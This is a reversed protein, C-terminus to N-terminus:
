RRILSFHGKRIRSNGKTDILEVSFWYDTAPLYQGNFLGNWGDGKPNVQTILKGFRDFIYIASSTYFNENVGLVKWTDNSGDNNPTFFKPFGIVSVDIQAIGCNNKDQIFLTYIGPTLNEFNPEDQFSSMFEDMKKIAFEYDGIGLNATTITISNNESDDVIIIDENTITAINSAEITITQPFSDCGEPSTAIVTYEGASSIIADFNSSIVVDNEDKWEYNYNGTPNYTTVNIPPLNQCYIATENLEFEPKPNVIFEVTTEASCNNNLQNEVKITIKQTTTFFPNPLPSPLPDGNENFYSVLMGTQGNLIDSEITSTNFPFEGDLDDDCEIQNLLANAVPKKDVIFELRTEAFCAGDLDVSNSDTVRITITQSSTSFPNPLPSPLPNGNQDVYSVLMGTQGNLITSEVSSTDFPYFGDFDDDCQRNVTVNNAIPIPEVNLTIHAGLGLCDNDLKSDVRIYITQTTTYGINRYNSPDLIPNEEALADTENRYYNIFLQQGVPFINEIESTVSSFNFSTIGDTEDNLVDLFDDCEYFTRQFSAPILTTSVILNIESVRYCGNSNEIRAWVIDTNIASNYSTPNFIKEANDNITAGMFTKFYTFTETATNVSIKTNAETLNFISYGDNDDDCQKLIVPTTITPLEFVEINFNTTASCNSNGNNVIKVYIPQIQTTNQFNTPNLIENLLAADRFYTITFDTATQGNLIEPEKSTLDFIEIGDIDTGTLNSDCQGFTIIIAPPNPSEFVQVSFSKTDYCAANKITQIRAIIIDTSFPSANTYPNTIANINDDADAQSKFYRVEFETTSQNKLLEADKLNALNFTIFGDNDTDCETISLPQNAIPVNHVEITFEGELTSVIGCIDTQTVVLSYIGNDAASANTFSLNPLNSFPTGNLFWNYTTTGTLTKPTVNFNDGVCLDTIQDNLVTTSGNIDVNTIEIQSFISAIFPPLGQTANNGGLDITAHQYNCALGDNEPNEIVSLFPIGLNYTKSLARYIKQDPGLQLGGRFLNQSDIIERSAIINAEINSSLNFQYLTSFHNLPDNYESSITSWFDNSASVYLKESNSSFEVGYPNNAPAILPLDRQNTVVGTSNDFDYLFLSGKDRINNVYNRMHAIAIKEGNPAIKLYGRRDVSTYNVTSIVPDSAVGTSTVEYAYFENEVYSLVWFTNCQDGKIAAVKETWNDSKGKALDIPGAIVSGLGGDANMDITYYNFGYEGNNVGSGVTFLYYENTSNPRPIIMASQTSSPHGKLNSGNQMINHNKNWVTTGDSYFLLEGTSKSFSSSGERTNLKGNNLSVPSGSNFDLGANEGFYWVNAEGQAFSQILHFFLILTFLKKM